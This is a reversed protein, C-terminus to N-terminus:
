FSSGRVLPRPPSDKTGKGHVRGSKFQSTGATTEWVAPLGLERHCAASRWVLPHRSRIKGIWSLCEVTGAGSTGAAGQGSCLRWVCVPISWLLLFVTPVRVALQDHQSRKSRKM